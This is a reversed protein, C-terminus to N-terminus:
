EYDFRLRVREGCACIVEVGRVLNGERIVEVRPDRREATAPRPKGVHAMEESLHVHRGVVVARALAPNALTEAM